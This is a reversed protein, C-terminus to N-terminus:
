EGRTKGATSQAPLEQERVDEIAQGIRSRIYSFTGIWVVCAFLMPFLNNATKRQRSIGFIVLAAWILNVIFFVEFIPMVTEGLYFPNPGLAYTPTLFQRTRVVYYAVGLLNLAVWIGEQYFAKFVATKKM